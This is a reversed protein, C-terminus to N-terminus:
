PTKVDVNTGPDSLEAAKVIALCIARCFTGEAASFTDLACAWSDDPQLLLAVTHNTGRRWWEIAWVAAVKGTAPDFISDEKPDDARPWIIVKSGRVEFVLGLAEAVKTNLQQNTM